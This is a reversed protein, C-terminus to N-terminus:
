STRRKRLEEFVKVRCELIDFGEPDVKLFVRLLKALHAEVEALLVVISTDGYNLRYALHARIRETAIIAPSWLPADHFKCLLDALERDFRAVILQAAKMSAERIRALLSKPAGAASSQSSSEDTM